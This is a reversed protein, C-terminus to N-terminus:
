TSSAPAMCGAAVQPWGLQPRLVTHQAWRPFYSSCPQSGWTGATNVKPTCGPVRCLSHTQQHGCSTATHPLHRQVHQEKLASPSSTRPGCRTAAAKRHHSLAPHCPPPLATLFGGPVGHTVRAGMAGRRPLSGACRGGDRADEGMGHEKFKQRKLFLM